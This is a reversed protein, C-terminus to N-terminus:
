LMVVFACLSFAGGVFSLLISKCVLRQVGEESLEVGLESEEDEMGEVSQPVFITLFIQQTM